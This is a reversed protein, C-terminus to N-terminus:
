PASGTDGGVWNKVAGALSGVAQQAREVYGFAGSPEPTAAPKSPAETQIVPPQTSDPPAVKEATTTKARKATRGPLRPDGSKAAASPKAAKRAPPATKPTSAPTVAAPVRPPVPPAAAAQAPTDSPHVAPGPPAAPTTEAKKAEPLPAMGVPEAQAKTEIPAAPAGVTGNELGTEGHEVIAPPTEAQPQSPQEAGSTAPPPSVPSDLVNAQQATIDASTAAQSTPEALGADADISSAAPSNVAMNWFANSLGLGALGVMIIGATIYLSRRSGARKKGVGVPDSLAIEAGRRRSKLEAALSPIANSTTTKLPEARAATQRAHKLGAEIAAFDPRRVPAPKETESKEPDGGNRRADVLRPGQAEGAPRADERQAVLPPPDALAGNKDKAQTTVGSRLLHKEFEELEAMFDRKDLFAKM